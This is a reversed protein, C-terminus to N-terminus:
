DDRGFRTVPNSGAVNLEPLPGRDSRFPTTPALQPAAPNAKCLRKCMPVPLAVAFGGPIDVSCNTGGVRSDHRQTTGVAAVDAVRRARAAFPPHGHGLFARHGCTAINHASKAPGM